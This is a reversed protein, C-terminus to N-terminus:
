FRMEDANILPIMFKLHMTQSVVAVVGVITLLYVPKASVADAFLINAPLVRGASIKAVNLVSQKM